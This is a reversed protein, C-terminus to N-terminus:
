GDAPAASVSVRLLLTKSRLLSGTNDWVLRVEGGGAPAPVEGIDPDDEPESFSVIVAGSVNYKPVDSARNTALYIVSLGHQRSFRKLAAGSTYVLGRVGIIVINSLCIIIIITIIISVIISLANIICMM